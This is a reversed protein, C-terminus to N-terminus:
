YLTNIYADTQTGVHVNKPKSQNNILLIDKIKLYTLVNVSMTIASFLTFYLVYNSTKSLIKEFKDFLTKKIVKNYFNNM